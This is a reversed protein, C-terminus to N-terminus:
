KSEAGKQGGHVKGAPKLYHRLASPEMGEIVLMLDDVQTLRALRSGLYLVMAGGDPKVNEVSGIEGTYTDVVPQKNDRAVEAEEVTM